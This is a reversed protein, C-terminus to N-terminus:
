DPFISPDSPLKRFTVRVGPDSIAASWGHATAFLHIQTNREIEAETLKLPWVGNVAAEVVTCAEEINLQDEIYKALTLLVANYDM